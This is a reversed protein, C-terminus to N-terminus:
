TKNEKRKLALKWYKTVDKLSKRSVLGDKCYSCEYTIYNPVVFSFFRSTKKSRYLYRHISALFRYPVKFRKNRIRKTLKTKGCIPCTSGTRIM